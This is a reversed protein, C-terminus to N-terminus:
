LGSDISTSRGKEEKLYKAIEEDNVAMSNLFSIAEPQGLKASTIICKRAMDINKPLGGLGNAYFVGLNFTAKPHGFHSAKQYCEMAVNLNRQVGLGKEYCLGLNFIGNPHLHTTARKLHPIASTYDKNKIHQVAVKYEFDALHQVLESVAKTVDPRDSKKASTADSNRPPANNKNSFIKDTKPYIKSKHSSLFDDNTDERFQIFSSSTDETYVESLNSTTSSNISSSESSDTSNNIQHLSLTSNLNETPVTSRENNLYKIERDSYIRSCEKSYAHSIDNNTLYEALSESSEKRKIQNNEQLSVESHPQDILDVNLRSRVTAKNDLLHIEVYKIRDSLTPKSNQPQIPSEFLLHSSTNSYISRKPVYLYKLYKNQHDDFNCCLNHRRRTCLIQSAYWGFIIAGSWTIAGLIDEKLHCENDSIKKHHKEKENNNSSGRSSNRKSRCSKLYPLFIEPGFPLQDITKCKLLDLDNTDASDLTSKEDNASTAASTNQQQQVTPTGCTWNKCDLVTFRELLTEKLKLRWM